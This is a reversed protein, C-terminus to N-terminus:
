LLTSCKNGALPMVDAQSFNMFSDLRMRPRSVEEEGLPSSFVGSGGERHLALAARKSGQDSTNNEALVKRSKFVRVENEEYWRGLETEWSSFVPCSSNVYHLIRGRWRLVM